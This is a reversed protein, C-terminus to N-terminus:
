FWSEKINIVDGAMVNFRTRYDKTNITYTKEGSPTQRKVVVKGRNAIRTFGGATAIAELLDIAEDGRILYNGPRTIQGMITFKQEAFTVLSLTVQPEVLYDANYLKRVKERADRITLGAVKVENVLPLQVSGDRSITAQTTLDAERFVTMGISDGPQLVYDADAAVSPVTGALRSSDSAQSARLENTTVQSYISSSALLLFVGVILTRTIM